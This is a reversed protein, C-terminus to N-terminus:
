EETKAEIVCQYDITHKHRNKDTNRDYCHLSM